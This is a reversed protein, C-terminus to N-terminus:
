SNDSATFKSEYMTSMACHLHNTGYKKLKRGSNISFKSEISYVKPMAFSIAAAVIACVITGGIILYKKKWLVRLLDILEIEDDAAIVGTQVQDTQHNEPM